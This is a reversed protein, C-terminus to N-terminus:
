ARPGKTDHREIIEINCLMEKKVIDKERQRESAYMLIKSNAINAIKYIEHSACSGIRLAYNDAIIGRYHDRYHHIFFVNEM